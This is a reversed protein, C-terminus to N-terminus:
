RVRKFLFEERVQKGKQLGEIVTLLMLGQRQYIIKQPFDHTANQFAFKDPGQNTLGFQVPQGGQVQAIYVLGASERIQLFEYFVTKNNKITRGFGLTSEGEPKSWHEELLSDGQRGEWCGSLWSLQDLTPKTQGVVSTVFLTLILGSLLINTKM